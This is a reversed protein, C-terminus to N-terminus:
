QVSASSCRDDLSLRALFYTLNVRRHFAGNSCFQFYEPCFDVLSLCLEHFNTQGLRVLSDISQFINLKDESAMQARQGLIIPRDSPLTSGPAAHIWSCGQHLSKNIGTQKVPLSRFSCSHQWIHEKTFGFLQEDDPFVCRGWTTDTLLLLWFLFCM